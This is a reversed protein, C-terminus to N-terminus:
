LVFCIHLLIAATQKIYKLPVKTTSQKLYPPKANKTEVFNSSVKSKLFVIGNVLITESFVYCSWAMIEAECQKIYVIFTSVLVHTNIHKFYEIFNWDTM